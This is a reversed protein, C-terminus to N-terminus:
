ANSCEQVTRQLAVLAAIRGSLNSGQNQQRSSHDLDPLFHTEIAPHAGCYGNHSPQKEKQRHPAVTLDYHVTRGWKFQVFLGRIKNSSASGLHQRPRERDPASSWRVKDWDLSWNAPALVLREPCFNTQHVSRKRLKLAGNILNFATQHSTFIWRM